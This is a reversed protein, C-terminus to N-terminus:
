NTKETERKNAKTRRNEVKNGRFGVHIIIKL